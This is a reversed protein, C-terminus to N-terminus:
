TGTGNGNGGKLHGAKLMCPRFTAFESVAGAPAVVNKLATGIHVHVLHGSERSGDSVLTGTLTSDM